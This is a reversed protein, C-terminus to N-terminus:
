STHRQKEIEDRIRKRADEPLSPGFALKDEKGRFAQVLDQFRMINRNFSHCIFCIAVHMRLMFRQCRPLNKYDGDALAKSVQKCTLIM